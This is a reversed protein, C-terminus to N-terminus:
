VGAHGGDVGKDVEAEETRRSPKEPDQEKPDLSSALESLAVSVGTLADSTALLDAPPATPPCFGLRPASKKAVNIALLLSSSL